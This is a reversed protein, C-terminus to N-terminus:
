RRHMLFISEDPICLLIYNRRLNYSALCSAEICASIDFRLHTTERDFLKMTDDNLKGKRSLLTILKEAINEPFFMNNRLAYKDPLYKCGACLTGDESHFEENRAVYIVSLLSCLNDSVFELCINLLTPISSMAQTWFRFGFFITHLHSSRSTTIQFPVYNGQQRSSIRSLWLQFHFSWQSSVAVKM